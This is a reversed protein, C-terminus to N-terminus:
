AIVEVARVRKRLILLCGAAVVALTLAPLIWGPPLGRESNEFLAAGIARLDAQVSVLATQPVRVFQRLVARFIESGVVFMVFALGAIRASRSLASIALTLLSVVLSIVFAQLVVAPLIWAHDWTRFQEPALTVAVIWLLVGPVLTVGLTLTLMVGLKGLIYDRRTLPRSLYVLIAGTRLDNAVLGSGGFIALLISLGIQNSLFSGFLKGDVPLVRGAQPFYTVIWVRGVAFVFPLWAVIMLGIYARKSLVMRLAERTIPWFRVSRLPGRHEYRRYSQEYIPM